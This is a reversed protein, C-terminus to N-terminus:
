GVWVRSFQCGLWEDAYVQKTFTRRLRFPPDGMAGQWEVLLKWQDGYPHDEDSTYVVSISCESGDSRDVGRLPLESGFRLGELIPKGNWKHLTM